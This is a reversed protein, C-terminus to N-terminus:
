HFTFESLLTPSDPTQHKYSLLSAIFFFDDKIPENLIESEIIIEKFIKLM